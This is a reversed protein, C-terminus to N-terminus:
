KIGLLEVEFNLPMNPPISGMVGEQGYALNSPCSLQAKGGVKMMQLGETWCKIVRDLRFEAPRGSKYSSDFERGNLLTGRYNVVVTDTSEPTAGAGEVLSTYELGSRTKVTEAAFASTSLCVLLAVVYKFM